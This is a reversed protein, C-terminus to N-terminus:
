WYMKLPASCLPVHKWLKQEWWPIPSIGCCKRLVFKQQALPNRDNRSSWFDSGTLKWPNQACHCYSQIARVNVIESFGWLMKKFVCKQQSLPKRENGLAGSIGVLVNEPTSFVTAFHKFLKLVLPLSIYGCCKRLVFKQHSLPNRDNRSSWFDRGTLKWPHQICWPLPIFASARVM